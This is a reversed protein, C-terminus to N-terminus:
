VTNLVLNHSNADTGMLQQKDFFYIYVHTINCSHKIQTRFRDVMKSERFQTVSKSSGRM